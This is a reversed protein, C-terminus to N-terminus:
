DGLKKWEDSDIDAQALIKRTLSWDIDGRHPNPIIIKRAGRMMVM